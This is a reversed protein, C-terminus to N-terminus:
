DTEFDSIECTHLSGDPKFHGSFYGAHNGKQFLYQVGDICTIEFKEAKSEGNDLCSSLLLTLFLFPLVKMFLVKM